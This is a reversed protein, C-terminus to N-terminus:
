PWSTTGPSAAAATRLLLNSRRGLLWELVWELSVLEPVLAREYELVLECELVLVLECELVLVRKWERMLERALKKQNPVRLTTKEAM